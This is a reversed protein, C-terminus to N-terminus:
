STERLIQDVIDKYLKVEPEIPAPPPAAAVTTAGSGKRRMKRDAWAKLDAVTYNKLFPNARVVSAGMVDLITRENNAGLVTHAGAPGLFHALYLRGPTSQHGRARLFAENEQALKTVMDRSITPDRRLNLLDARSMTAVLEPRYSRMMRLWTSEIFQGLGTATSRTNKANPNGASEVKIIQQVLADVAGSAVVVQGGSLLPMPNIPEGNQRTEFHLHPGTSRGTTGVYGIVEGQAVLEGKKSRPGFKNLHAYRTELGGPHKIIVLNGYGKGDGAHSIQGSAAAYVPTGTPAAWDVGAHLRVVKHIPHKRPGFKSTLIGTVPSIFAGGGRPGARGPAFCKFGGEARDPIFYCPMTGSPGRIGAFMVQGALQGNPGHQRSFAITVEDGDVALKDLDHTKSMMAVIEGVLATPVGNRIAASYVADLLRFKGDTTEANNGDRGLTSLAMLNEKLWPDSGPLYTDARTRAVTGVYGEPAYYSLQLMRSASGKGTTRLAVISGRKLNEAQPFLALVGATDGESLDNEAMLGALDRDLEVQVIVDKFLEARFAEPKVYTVSTTNEIETKAVADTAATEGAELSTGYSDTLDGLEVTTDLATLEEVAADELQSLPDALARNRQAQFFAFDERSSPLATILRTEKVVLNDRVIVLREAQPLGFRSIDLIGPGEILKQREEADEDVEAFRLITPDGAIDIFANNQVVPAVDFDTEVQVLDFDDESTSVWGALQSPLTTFLAVPIAVVVLVVAAVALRGALKRNRRSRAHKRGKQFSPDVKIM